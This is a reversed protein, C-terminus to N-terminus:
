YDDRESPPGYQEILDCTCTGGGYLPKDCEAHHHRVPPKPPSLRVSGGKTPQAPVAQATPASAAGAWDVGLEALASRQDATLKDRRARTNSVWAGLKVSVPEAEGNVVIEESHGRPVPRQGEREVWQALAALGRQFAQQAKSSRRRV